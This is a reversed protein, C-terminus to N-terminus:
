HKSSRLDFEESCDYAGFTYFQPSIVIFNSQKEKEHQKSIAIPQSPEKREYNCYNGHQTIEIVTKKIAVKIVSSTDMAFMSSTVFILVVIIKKM